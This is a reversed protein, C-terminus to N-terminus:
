YKNYVLIRYEFLCTVPSIAIYELIDGLENNTFDFRQKLSKFHCDNVNQIVKISQKIIYIM